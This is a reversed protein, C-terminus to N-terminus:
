VRVKKVIKEEIRMVYLRYDDDTEIKGEIKEVASSVTSHDKGFEVALDELTWTSDPLDVLLKYALYM